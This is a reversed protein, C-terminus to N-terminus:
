IDDLADHLEKLDMGACFASGSAPSSSRAFRPENEAREFAAAIAEIMPISLANRTDPNNLTIIAAPYRAEVPRDGGHM